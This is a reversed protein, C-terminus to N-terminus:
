AQRQAVPAAPLNVHRTVRLIEAVLPASQFPKGVHGAFGAAHYETIHHTMVNATIALAVPPDAGQDAARRQLEALTAIGDLDPMSIDLLVADFAGPRWAALLDHGGECMHVSAGARKLMMGLLTRNVASDDAAIFSLGSLPPASEPAPESESPPLTPLVGDAPLTCEALPLRLTVCTGRGLETDLAIEGQMQDVLGRTIALGLGTGGFRRAVSGDAQEFGSFIRAAQEASMGIGTDRVRIVLPAGATGEIEVTVSGSETFKIANSVLNHVVQLIRHLDGRRAPAGAGPGHLHFSVGKDEAAPAHLAAIREGIACVAFPQDEIQMKGAEIRSMDLVDNLVNLLTAGSDRITRAMTRARPDELAQELMEAMGLVGNLPTRIEHSMNALFQSKTRNAAEARDRAAELSRETELQETIDALACVIRAAVGPRDVRAVNVSLIRAAGDARVFSVRVERQSDAANILSAFCPPAGADPQPLPPFLEAHQMGPITDADHGTLKGVEANAFTVRGTADLAVIGTMTTQMLLQLYDREDALREELEHRLTVDNLWLVRGMEKDRDLPTEIQLVKMEVRREGLDLAVPGAAPDLAMMQDAHPGLPGWDAINGGARSKGALKLASPNASAVRGDPMVIMLPAPTNRWLVELAVARLDLMRDSIIFGSLAMMMLAYAYATPDLGFVTYGGIVYSLNATVPLAFVLLWAIFFPRHARHAGRLGRLLVLVGATIFFYLWATALYFLPGHDFYVQGSQPGETMLRTEPGYFLGYWSNTAAMAFITLPGGFLLLTRRRDHWRDRARAYDDIFFFLATPLLGIWLWAFKAWVLKCGEELARNELTISTLWLIAAVLSVLFFTKGHFRHFRAVWVMVVLLVLLMLAAVRDILGAQALAVCDTM